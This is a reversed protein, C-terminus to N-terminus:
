EILVLGFYHQPDEYCTVVKITYDHARVTAYVDIGCAEMSPRAKYPYRCGEDFSCEHCLSCPGAGLGFAKYYGKLFLDREVEVAIEKVKGGPSEFLVARIYGDLMKRTEAPLPTHPPCVLSSGYGGCGFRCKWRVWEDTVVTGPDIIRASLAGKKVVLSIVQRDSLVKKKAAPISRSMTM